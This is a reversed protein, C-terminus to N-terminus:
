ASRPPSRQRRHPRPCWQSRRDGDHRPARRTPVGYRRPRAAPRASGGRPPEAWSTAVIESFTEELWGPDDCLLDVLEDDADRAALQDPLTDPAPLLAAVSVVPLFHSV